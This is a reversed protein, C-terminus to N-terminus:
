SPLRELAQSALKQVAFLEEGLPTILYALEMFCVALGEVIRTM